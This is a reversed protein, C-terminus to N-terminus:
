PFGVSFQAHVHGSQARQLLSHCHSIAIKPLVILFCINIYYLYIYIYMSPWLFSYICSVEGLKALKVMQNSNPINALNHTNCDNGTTLCVHSSVLFVVTKM